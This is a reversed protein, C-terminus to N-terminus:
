PNKTEKKVVSPKTFNYDFSFEGAEKKVAHTELLTLGFSIDIAAPYPENEYKGDLNNGTMSWPTADDITLEMSTLIALRQELLGAVTIKIINGTFALPSYSSNPYTVASIKKDPYVLTRLKDLNRQMSIKSKSDLYYLKLGFTITREVGAYKYINFPSGLYKFSNWEPSFSESFGSITGPLLINDNSTIDEYKEILVYPIKLLNQEKFTKVGADDLATKTELIDLITSNIQDFNKNNGRENIATQDFETRGTIPNKIESYVPYYSSFNKVQDIGKQENKDRHSFKPKYYENETGKRKIADVLKKIGGASGFDKIAGVAANAIAAGPSSSGQKIKAIISAPAPSPKIFYASGQKVSDRLLAATPALLTIPKSFVKNNQFITDSVRNPNGGFAGGIQNGILDAIANPSSTLLAAGRPANIIGRSEILITGSLGYLNKKQSKFLEKITAM